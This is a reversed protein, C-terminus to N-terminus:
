HKYIAINRIINDAGSVSNWQLKISANAAYSNGNVPYTIVPRPLTKNEIYVYCWESWSSTSGAYAEVVFKYWYGGKVNSASLTYYLRSSSVSGNWSDISAESDSQYDPEGALQKIYYRYGDVGSVANWQLKISTGATYTNGSVPYTIVPRDLNGTLTTFSKATTYEEGAENEAFARYYYTTNPLLGTITATKTGKTTYGYSYQEMSSRTSSTGVYFGWDDIIYGYDRNITMSLVASNHTINSASGNTIDPEHSVYIDITDSTFSETATKSSSDVAGVWIRYQGIEDIYSSIKKSTTTLYTNSLVLEDTTVNRVAIYYGAAGSVANWRVTISDDYSWVSWASPSSISLTSSAAMASPVECCTLLIVLTLISAICRKASKM